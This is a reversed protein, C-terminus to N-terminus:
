SHCCYQGAVTARRTEFVIVDDDLPELVLVKMARELTRLRDGFQIRNQRLMERVCQGRRPSNRFAHRSDASATPQIFGFHHFSFSFSLHLPLSSQRKMRSRSHVPDIYDFRKHVTSGIDFRFVVESSRRYHGCYYRSTRVCEPRQDFELGVYPFACHRQHSRRGSM